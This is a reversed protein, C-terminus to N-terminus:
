VAAKVGESRVCRVCMEGESEGWAAVPADKLCTAESDDKLLFLTMAGDVASIQEFSPHTLRFPM